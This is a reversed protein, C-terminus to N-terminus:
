LADVNKRIRPAGQMNMGIVRPSADPTEMPLATEGIATSMSIGIKNPKLSDGPGTGPATITIRPVRVGKLRPNTLRPNPPNVASLVKIMRTVRPKDSPSTVGVWM